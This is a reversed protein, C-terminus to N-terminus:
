PIEILGPLHLVWSAQAISKEVQALNLAVDEGSVMQVAAVKFDSLM